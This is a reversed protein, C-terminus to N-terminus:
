IELLSKEFIEKDWLGGMYKLMGILNSHAIAVKRMAKSPIADVIQQPTLMYVSVSKHGKLKKGVVRHNGDLLIVSSEVCHFMGAIIPEDNDAAKALYTPDVDETNAITLALDIPMEVPKIGKKEIEQKLEDIYWIVRYYADNPMFIERDFYQIDKGIEMNIPLRFGDYKEDKLMKYYKFFMAEYAYENEIPSIAEILQERKKFFTDLKYEGDKYLRM